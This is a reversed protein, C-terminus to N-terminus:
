FEELRRSGKEPAFPVGPLLGWARIGLMRCVPREGCHGWPRETHHGKQGMARPRAGLPCPGRLGMGWGQPGPGGVGWGQPRATVINTTPSVWRKQLLVEPDGQPTPKLEEVYVRLPGSEADLLSMDTAAMAVM